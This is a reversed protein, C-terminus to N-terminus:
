ASADALVSALTFPGGITGVILRLLFSDFSYSSRAAWGFGGCFGLLCWIIVIGDTCFNM